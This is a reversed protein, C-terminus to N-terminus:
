LYEALKMWLEKAKEQQVHCLNTMEGPDAALDYLEMSGTTTNYILKWKGDRVSKVNAADPSPHPGEVGGTESFALRDEAEEGRIIPLLSRGRLPKHKRSPELGVMDLITPLVDVTRVQVKFEKGCPLISPCLLYAWISITYDYTFVGYAKEGPKEGIGGGHDTTVVILSKDEPDWKRIRALLEHVHRAAAYAFKKYRERNKELHGFYEEDFPDYKRLVERLIGHHIEPYHLFSFFPRSQSFAEDLEQIHNKLICPEDNEPVVKLSDFGHHPFLISSFTYGRTHYGAASLYQVMTYCEKSSYESSRTYGDVGTDRGYLGTHLAHLSALTYPAYTVVNSFLVGRQLLDNFVGHVTRMDNRFQDLLIFIINPRFPNSNSRGGLLSSLRNKWTSAAM